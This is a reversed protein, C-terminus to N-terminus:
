AEAAGGPSEILGSLGVIDFLHAIQPRATVSLAGAPQGKSCEFLVHLGRSCIFTCRNLDVIVPNGLNSAQVISDRFESENLMDIDGFVEIIEAADTSRRIFAARNSPEPTHM